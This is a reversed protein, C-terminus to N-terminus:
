KYLYDLEPVLVLLNSTRLSSTKTGCNSFTEIEQHIDEMRYEEEDPKKPWRWISGTVPAKPSM